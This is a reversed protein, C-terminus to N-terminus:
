VEYEKIMSMIGIEMQEYLDYYKGNYKYTAVWYDGNWGGNLYEGNTTIEKWLEWRKQKEGDEAYAIEYYKGNKCDLTDHKQPIMRGETHNAIEEYLNNKM